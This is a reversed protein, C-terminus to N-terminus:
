RYPIFTTGIRKLEQYADPVRKSKVVPIPVEIIYEMEILRPHQHFGTSKVKYLYVPEKLLDFAGEYVEAITFEGNIYGIELDDNSSEVAMAVAYEYNPTAFVVDRGVLHNYNPELRKINGISSGHYFISRLKDM